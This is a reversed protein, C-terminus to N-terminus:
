SVPERSSEANSTRGREVARVLADWVPRGFWAEGPDVVGTEPDVFRIGVAGDPAIVVSLQGRLGGFDDPVREDYSFVETGVLLDGDYVVKM